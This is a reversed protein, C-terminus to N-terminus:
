LVKEFSGGLKMLYVKKLLIETKSNLILSEQKQLNKTFFRQFHWFISFFSELKKVIKLSFLNKNKSIKPLFDSFVGFYSLFSEGCKTCRFNLSLPNKHSEELFLTYMFNSIIIQLFTYPNFLLLSDM